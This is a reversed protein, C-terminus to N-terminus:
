CLGGCLYVEHYILRGFKFMFQCALAAIGAGAILLAFRLARESEPDM